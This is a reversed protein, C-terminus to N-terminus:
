LTANSRKETSHHIDSENSRKLGRQPVNGKFAAEFELTIRIAEQLTNPNQMRVAVATFRLLGCLFTYVEDTENFIQASIIFRRFETVHESIGEASKQNLSLSQRKRLDIFGKPRSVDGRPYVLGRPLNIPGIPL